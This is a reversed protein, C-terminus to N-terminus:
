GDAGFLEEIEVGFGKLVGEGTLREGKGLRRLQVPSDYALVERSEPTVLWVQAVGIEFYETLKQQVEQWRDGPSMIEVVLDPATALFGRPLGEPVRQRSLFVIDAGRVRDPNRHTYIGVEGGLVWGLQRERVFADLKAGLTIEIRGHEGGTPVMPVIRGDILECPGIDGLALLDEGSLLDKEIASQSM